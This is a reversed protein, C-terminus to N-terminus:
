QGRREDNVLRNSIEKMKKWEFVVCACLHSTSVSAITEASFPSIPIAQWRDLKETSANQFCNSARRTSTIFNLQSPRCLMVTHKAISNNKTAPEPTDPRQIGFFRQKANSKPKTLCKIYELRWQLMVDNQGNREEERNLSKPEPETRLCLSAASATCIFTALMFLSLICECVYLSPQAAVM